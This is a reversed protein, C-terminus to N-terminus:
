SGPASLDLGGACPDGTHDPIDEEGCKNWADIDLWTDEEGSIWQNCIYRKFQRIKRPSQTAENMKERLKETSGMGPLDLSPNAEKWGKEDKWDRDTEAIFAFQSINYFPDDVDLLAKAAQYEEYGILDSDDGATTIILFLPQPRQIDGYMLSEYFRRDRWAHLEDTILCHPNIGESSDADASIAEYFSGSAPHVLRKISDKRTIIRDLHPSIKVMRSAKRYCISAQDRDVATSYVESEEVGDAITMYLATGSIVTTKASKKATTIFGKQFRRRGDAQKWGFLPTVVDRDWWELLEFPKTGGKEDDPIRLLKKYFERVRHAALPDFYCGELIAREDNPHLDSPKGCVHKLWGEEKAKKLASALSGKKKTRKTTKKKKKTKGM